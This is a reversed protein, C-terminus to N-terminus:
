TSLTRRTTELFAPKTMTPECLFSVTRTFRYLTQIGMPTSTELRVLSAVLPCRCPKLRGWPVARQTPLTFALLTLLTTLLSSTQMGTMMSTGQILRQQVPAHKLGIRLKFDQQQCGISLCCGQTSDLPQSIQQCCSSKQSPIMTLIM